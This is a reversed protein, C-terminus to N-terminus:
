VHHILFLSYSILFLFTSIWSKNVYASYPIYHVQMFHNGVKKNRM